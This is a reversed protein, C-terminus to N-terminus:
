SSLMKLVFIATTIVPNRANNQYLIKVFQLKVFEHIQLFSHPYVNLKNFSIYKLWLFVSIVSRQMYVSIELM